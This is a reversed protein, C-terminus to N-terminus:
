GKLVGRSQGDKAMVYEMLRAHYQEKKEQDRRLLEDRLVERAEIDDASELITQQLVASEQKALHEMYPAMRPDVEATDEADERIGQIGYHVGGGPKLSQKNRDSGSIGHSGDQNKAGRYGDSEPRGTQDADQAAKEYFRARTAADGCDALTVIMSAVDSVAEDLREQFEEQLDTFSRHLYEDMNEILREEILEVAAAVEEALRNDASMQIIGRISEIDEESTNDSEQEVLLTKGDEALKILASSGIELRTWGDRDTM